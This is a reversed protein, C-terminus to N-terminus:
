RDRRLLHMYIAACWFAIEENLNVFFMAIFAMAVSAMELGLWVWRPVVARRPSGDTPQEPVALNGIRV